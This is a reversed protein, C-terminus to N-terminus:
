TGEGSEPTVSGAKKGREWEQMSEKSRFWRFDCNLTDPGNKGADFGAEYASQFKDPPTEFDKRIEDLLNMVDGDALHTNM